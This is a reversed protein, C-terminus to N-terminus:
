SNKYEELIGRLNTLGTKLEQNDYITDGLRKDNLIIGRMLENAYVKDGEKIARKMEATANERESDSLRSSGAILKSSM